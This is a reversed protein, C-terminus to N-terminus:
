NNNRQSYKQSIKLELKIKAQAKIIKQYIATSKLYCM